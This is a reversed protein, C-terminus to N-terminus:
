EFIDAFIVDDWVDTIASANAANGLAALKYMDEITRLVSYHNITTTSLFGNQVHPGVFITPINNSGSSDDEDWTVILLSNRAATSSLFIPANTSLWDDGLQVLDTTLANCNLSDGHMDHCLNPAVFSVTPLSGSNLANAFDSYPQNATVPLAPFDPVPNHKRAYLGSTCSTDGVQPLDESYQAFSLGADILQQALNSTAFSQPCSDDIVGQPSGSFLAIYNPQSPHTVAFSNSFRAGLAILTNNIYPASSSNYIDAASHNEMIVVVVHDFRPVTAANANAAALTGILGLLCRACQSM